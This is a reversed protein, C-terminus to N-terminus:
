RKSLKQTCLCSYHLLRANFRRSLLLVLIYLCGRSLRSFIWYLYRRLCVFRGVSAGILTGEFQGVVDLSIDLTYVLWLVLSADSWLVVLAGLLVGVLHGM